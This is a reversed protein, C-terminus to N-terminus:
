AIVVDRINYSFTEGDTFRLMTYYYKNNQIFYEGKKIFDGIESERYGRVVKYKM